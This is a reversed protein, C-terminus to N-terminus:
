YNVVKEEESVSGGDKKILEEVSLGKEKAKRLYEKQAKFIVEQTDYPYPIDNFIFEQFQGATQIQLDGYRFLTPIIGKVDVTVDQIRHHPVSSLIRSFLSRLETHITRESTVVWCDLYYEAVVVFVVQWLVLALLSLSYLALIRAKYELLFPLSEAVIEPFTFSAFFTIIMLVLIAVFSIGFFILSRVLIFHHRRKVLVVEEQDRITIM